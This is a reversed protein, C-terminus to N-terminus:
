TQPPSYYIATQSIQNSVPVDESAPVVRIIGNELERTANAVILNTSSTQEFIRYHYEGVYPLNVTGSTLIESGSSAVETIRFMNYRDTYSSMEPAIFTKYAQSDGRFTLEFLFYPSTLTQKEKLTFVVDSNSGRRIIEM